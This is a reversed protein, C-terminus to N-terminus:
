AKRQDLVSRKPLVFSPHEDGRRPRAARTEQECLRGVLPLARPDAILAAPAPDKKKVGVVKPAIMFRHLRLAHAKQLGGAVFGISPDGDEFVFPAVSPIKQLQGVLGLGRGLAHPTLMPRWIAKQTAANTASPSDSCSRPPATVGNMRPM